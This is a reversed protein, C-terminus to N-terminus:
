RYDGENSSLLWTVVGVSRHNTWMLICAVGVVVGITHTMLLTIYLNYRWATERDIQPTENVVRTAGKPIRMKCSRWCIPKLLCFRSRVRTGAFGGQNSWRGTMLRSMNSKLLCLVHGSTNCDRNASIRSDNFYGSSNNVSPDFIPDLTADATTQWFQCFDV